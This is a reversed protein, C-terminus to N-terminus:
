GDAFRTARNARGRRSQEGALGADYVRPERATSSARALGRQDTPISLTVGHGTARLSTGFLGHWRPVCVSESSQELRATRQPPPPIAFPEVVANVLASVRRSPPQRRLPEIPTTGVRSAARRRERVFTPLAGRLEHAARRRRTGDRRTGLVSGDASPSLSIRSIFRPRAREM